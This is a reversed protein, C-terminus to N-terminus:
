DGSINPNLFDIISERLLEQNKVFTLSTIENIFEIIQDDFLGELQPLIYISIASEYDGNNELFRGIDEIIAPGIKRFKNVLNWLKAINDYEYFDIKWLDYFIKILNDDIRRPIPVRIFAFRRMFAYSMEYLSTKDFTNMTGIIRWDKPVMYKGSSIDSKNEELVLRIDEGTNSRYGLDVDDGSLISFFPGFAKDIDARNIEDIILWKNINKGDKDKFCSLFIGPEFFLEGLKNPKYGGITDYSSWDSMATVMKYDVNFSKVIAKAIKSKGTGPPGLLIISKGSKIALSIDRKLREEEEFYLSSLDIEDDFNVKISTEISNDNNKNNDVEEIKSIKDIDWLAMDLVRYNKFKCNKDRYKKLIKVNEIYNELKSPNNLYVEQGELVVLNKEVGGNIVPFVRPKLCHLIISAAASQMGKIGKELYIQSKELIDIENNMDKIEICLSIFKQVDKKTSNNKFTYFGTGFMGISAENVVNKYEKNKAKIWIEDLLNILKKKDIDLLNSAKIKSKKIDISASWTGLAMIYLMDLDEIGVLNVDINSLANVTERVLKYSGDHKDEDIDEENRIKDVVINDKYLFYIDLVEKMKKDEIKKYDGSEIFKDIDKYEDNLKRYNNIIEKIKNEDIKMIHELWKKFSKEVM